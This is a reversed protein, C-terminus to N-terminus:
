ASYEGAQTTTKRRPTKTRRAPTKSPPSPWGGYNPRQLRSHIEHLKKGAPEPMERVRPRMARLPEALAEAAESLKTVGSIFVNELGHATKLTKIEAKCSAIEALLAAFDPKRGDAPEKGVDSQTTKEDPM